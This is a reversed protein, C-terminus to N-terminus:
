KKYGTLEIEAREIIPVGDRTTMGLTVQRIVGEVKLEATELVFAAGPELALVQGDEKLYRAKLDPDHALVPPVLALETTQTDTKDFLWVELTLTLNANNPATQNASLGYEGLYEDDTEIAIITNYTPSGDFYLVQPAPYDGDPHPPLPVPTTEPSEFANPPVIDEADPEPPTAQAEEGLFEPADELLFDDLEDDNELRLEDDPGIEPEPELEPELEEAASELEAMLNGLSAELAEDDPEFALAEPNQEPRVPEVSQFLPSEPATDDILAPTEPAKPTEPTAPTEPSAPQAPAFVPEEPTLLNFRQAILILVALVGLALLPIVLWMWDFGGHKAAEPQQIEKEQPLHLDQRLAQLYAAGAPNEDDLSRALEFLKPGLVNADDWFRLRWAATRIDHTTAYSEATMLWYDEVIDSKLDSPSAPPTEVPFLAWGFVFWGVILGLLFITISRLYSPANQKQAPSGANQFIDSQNTM